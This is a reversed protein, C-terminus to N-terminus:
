DDKEVSKKVDEKFQKLEKHLDEKSIDLTEMVEHFPKHEKKYTIIEDIPKDSLKAIAAAGILFRLPIGEKIYADIEAETKNAYGALFAKVEKKNEKVFQEWQRMSDIRKFEEMDIGLETATKEWSKNEKYLALVDDIDKEAKKSLMAAMFIDQKSYGEEKLQEAKEHEILKHHHGHKYLEKEAHVPVSQDWTLTIFLIAILVRIKKM